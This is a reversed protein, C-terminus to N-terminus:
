VPTLKWPSGTEQYYTTGLSLVASGFELTVGLATKKFFMSAIFLALQAIAVQHVLLAREILPRLKDRDPQKNKLLKQSFTKTFKQMKGRKTKIAEFPRNKEIGEQLKNMSRLDLIANAVLTIQLLFLTYILPTSLVAIGLIHHGVLFTSLIVSLGVPATKLSLFSGVVVLPDEWVLKTSSLFFQMTTAKSAVTFVQYSAKAFVEVSPAKFFLAVEKTWDFLHRFFSALRYWGSTKESTSSLWVGLKRVGGVQAKALESYVPNRSVKFEVGNLTAM